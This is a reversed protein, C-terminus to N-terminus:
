KLKEKASIVGNNHCLFGLFLWMPHWWSSTSSSLIEFHVNLIASLIKDKYRGNIVVLKTSHEFTFQEYWRKILTWIFINSVSVSTLICIFVYLPLCVCMLLFYFIFILKLVMCLYHSTPILASIIIVYHLDASLFMLSLVSVCLRSLLFM